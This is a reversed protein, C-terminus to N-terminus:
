QKGSLSGERLMRLADKWSTAGSTKLEPPVNGPAVSTAGKKWVEIGLEDKGQSYGLGQMVEIFVERDKGPRMVRAERIRTILGALTPKQFGYTFAGFDEEKLIPEAM